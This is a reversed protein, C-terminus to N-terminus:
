KALEFQQIVSALKGAVDQRAGAIIEHNAPRQAVSATLAEMGTDAHCIM